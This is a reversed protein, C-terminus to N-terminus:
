ATFTRILAIAIAFAASGIVGILWRTIRTETKAIITEVGKIDEKTATSELKTQIKAIEIEVRQLRDDHGGGVNGM